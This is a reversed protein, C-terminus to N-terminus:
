YSLDYTSITNIIEEIKVINNSVTIREKSINPDEAFLENLKEKNQQSLLRSLDESVNEELEKVTGSIILKIIYDIARSKITKYYETALKRVQMVNANEQSNPVIPVSLSRKFESDTSWFFKEEINLYHTIESVVHDGYNKIKSLLETTVLLKLKPYTELGGVVDSKVIYGITEELVSIVKNVFKASIPLILMIPKKTKDTICRDILQELSIQTTIHYGNFSEMIKDLYTDDTLDETFPDLFKMDLVFDEIAKGIKFGINQLKGRSELCDEIANDLQSIIRTFYNIKSQTGDLETGISLSRNKQTRLIEQLENRIAPISKKISSILYKQLHNKLNIIGFRKNSIIERKSDFNQTFWETEKTSSDTRNNVVFYGEDMMVDKSINGAVINNLSDKDELLDPKTIVGVTSFMNTKYQMNKILALGIDTELDTKSQIVTLVVTNPISVQERILEAIEETLKESQGKDRCAIAVQGPLDVFSFNTVHNSYIDIFIPVNSISWKNVTIQDTYEAIKKRFQELKQNKVDSTISISLITKYIEEIAGDKLLSLTLTVNEKSDIHHMRVNIPTRTVM